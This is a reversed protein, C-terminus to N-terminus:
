VMPFDFLPEWNGVMPKKKLVLCRELLKRGVRRIKKFDEEGLARSGHTFHSDNRVTIIGKLEKLNLDEIVPDKKISLFIASDMLGIKSPLSKEQYDDEFLLKLADNYNEVTVWSPYDPRSPNIGNEQLSGSLIMEITRYTLFVAIDYRARRSFREGSFFYNLCSYLNHDPDKDDALIRLISRFKQIRDPSVFRKDEPWRRLFDDIMGAAVEFHFTDFKQFIGALAMLKRVGWIDEVRRDLETLIALCRAFDCQNFAEKARDFDIDGLVMLPNKLINPYETGPDPQRLDPLYRESDVYGIDISILSGAMAAGGVMSKKGGTLDLLIERPSKGQVFGKIAKYVGTPDSSHVSERTVQSLTLGTWYQILDLYQETEESHIFLVKEPRIAKLFLIIPQPSFGLLSILYKYKKLDGAKQLFREIVEQFLLEYYFADARGRDKRSMEKWNDVREQFTM